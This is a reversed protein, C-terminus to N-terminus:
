SKTCPRPKEAAAAENTPKPTKEVDAAILTVPENSPLVENDSRKKATAVGAALAAGAAPSGSSSDAAEAVVEETPVAEAVAQPVTSTITPQTAAALEFSVRKKEGEGEVGAAAARPLGGHVLPTTNAAAKAGPLTELDVSECVIHSQRVDREWPREAATEAEALVTPMAARALSAM